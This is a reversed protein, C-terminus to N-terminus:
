CDRYPRIRRVSSFYADIKESWIPTWSLTNTSELAYEINKESPINLSIMNFKHNGQLRLRFQLGYLNSEPAM